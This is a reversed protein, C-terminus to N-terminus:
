LVLSTSPLTCQKNKSYINMKKGEFTIPGDGSLGAEEMMEQVEEDTMRHGLNLMIDKLDSVTVFGKGDADCVSFVQGLETDKPNEYKLM